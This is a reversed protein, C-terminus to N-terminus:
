STTAAPRPTSCCGRLGQEWEAKLAARNSPRPTATSRWRPPRPSRTVGWADTESGINALVLRVWDTTAMEADRTMDWAAGWVLARALSDEVRSLGDIVTALSREDLRIKAYAHDEDNLLLLAPQATGVLEAVDTSAGEVDVELYERRM